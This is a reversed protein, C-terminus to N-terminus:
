GCALGSEVQDIHVLQENILGYACINKELHSM